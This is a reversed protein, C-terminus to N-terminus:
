FQSSISFSFNQQDLERTQWGRKKQQDLERTQWGRKQQQDLERMQWGRKKTPRIGENTVRFAPLNM